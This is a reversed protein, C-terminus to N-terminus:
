FGNTDVRFLMYVRRPLHANIKDQPIQLFSESFRRTHYMRTGFLAGPPQEFRSHALWKYDRSLSLELLLSLMHCLSEARLFHVHQSQRLMFYSFPMSRVCWVRLTSWFMLAQLLRFTFMLYLIPVARGVLHPWGIPCVKALWFCMDCSPPWGCYKPQQWAFKLSMTIPQIKDSWFGYISTKIGLVESHSRIQFCFPRIFFPSIQASVCMRPLHWYPCSSLQFWSMVVIRCVVLVHFLTMFCTKEWLEWFSDVQWFKSRSSRAKLDPLFDIEMKLSGLKHNETLAIGAFAYLPGVDHKRCFHAASFRKKDRNLMLAM